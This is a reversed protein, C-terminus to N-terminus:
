SRDCIMDRLNDKSFRYQKGLIRPEPKLLGDNMWSYITEVSVQFVNAVDRTTLFKDDPLEEIREKLM